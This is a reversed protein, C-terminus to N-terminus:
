IMLYDAIQRRWLKLGYSGNYCIQLQKSKYNAGQYNKQTIVPPRQRQLLSVQLKIVDVGPFNKM